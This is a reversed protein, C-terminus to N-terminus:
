PIFADSVHCTHAPKMPCPIPTVLNLFSHQRGLAYILVEGVAMGSQVLVSGRSGRGQGEGM